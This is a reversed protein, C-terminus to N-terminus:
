QVPKDRGATENLTQQASRTPQSELKATAEIEVLAEDEILAKVVVVSMAPFHRGFIERYIGGIQRLNTLYSQKDTIYWTLRVVDSAHGGSAEVVAVVNQLAQKAQLAFDQTEFKQSRNWGIQGAVFLLGEPTLVGNSYGRPRDWDNPNITRNDM